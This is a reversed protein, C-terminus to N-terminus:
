FSPLVFALLFGNKTEKFSVSRCKEGCMSRFFGVGIPPNKEDENVVDPSQREVQHLNSFVMILLFPFSYKEHIDCNSKKFWTEILLNNKFSQLLDNESDKNRGPFIKM